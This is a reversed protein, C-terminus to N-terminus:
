KIHGEGIEPPVIIWKYNGEQVNIYDLIIDEDGPWTSGCVV